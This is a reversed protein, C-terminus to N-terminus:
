KLGLFISRQQRKEKLAKGEASVCFFTQCKKPPVSKHFPFFVFGISFCSRNLVPKMVAALNISKAKNLEIQM